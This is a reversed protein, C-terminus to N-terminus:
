NGSADEDGEVDGFLKHLRLTVASLDSIQALTLLSFLKELEDESLREDTGPKRLALRPLDVPLNAKSEQLLERLELGSVEVLPFTVGNCHWEGRRRVDLASFDM